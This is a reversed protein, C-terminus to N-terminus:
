RSLVFGIDQRAAWKSHCKECLWDEDDDVYGIPNEADIHEWCIECHEHDWGGPMVGSPAAQDADYVRMRRSTAAGDGSGDPRRVRVGNETELAADQATFHVRQWAHDPNSVNLILRAQWYADLWALRTGVPADREYETFTVFVASRREPDLQVLDGILSEGGVLLWSRDASVGTMHNFTGTLRLGAGVTEAREVTFRPLDAITM